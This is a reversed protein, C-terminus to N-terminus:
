DNSFLSTIITQIVPVTMTNGLQRKSQNESVPFSFSDPFGQLRQMELISLFRFVGHFKYFCKGSTLLCRAIAPDIVVKNSNFNTTTCYAIQKPNMFVSAPPNPELITSLHPTPCTQTVFSFPQQLDARIGVFYVRPRNQAVGFDKSNLLSVYVNYGQAELLGKVTAFTAGKDHNLIGRVNEAIFYSPQKIRLIELSAFLLQGRSDTLGKRLGMSSYSQCPFGFVYLDIDALKNADIALIDNHWETAVHNAEYTTRAFKDIDCAWEVSHPINLNKFAQEPAGIGSFTTGLRITM